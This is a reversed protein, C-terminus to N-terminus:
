AEKFPKTQMEIVVEDTQAACVRAYDAWRLMYHAWRLATDWDTPARGIRFWYGPTRRWNDPKVWFDVRYGEDNSM